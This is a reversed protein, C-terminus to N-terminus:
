EEIVKLSSQQVMDSVILSGDREHLGLPWQYEMEIHSVESENAKCSM